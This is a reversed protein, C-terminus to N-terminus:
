EGAVTGNCMVTKEGETQGCPDSIFLAIRIAKRAYKRMMGKVGSGLTLNCKNEWATVQALSALNVQM